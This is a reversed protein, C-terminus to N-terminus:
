ILGNIERLMLGLARIRESCHNYVQGQLAKAVAGTLAIIIIIIIDHFMLM